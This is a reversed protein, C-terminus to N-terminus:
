EHSSRGAFIFYLVVLLWLSIGAIYKVLPPIPSPSWFGEVVAALVLMGSAGFFLPVALTGARKFADVRKYRGPAILAWGMRLGAAGSFVIGNLELAGHGIVFPYFFKGFNINEIHAFITGLSVGNFIVFFLSGIGALLGGAVTRFGISVNNFIYYAFMEADNKFSRPQLFHDSDPNYMSEVQDLVSNGAISYALEPELRIIGWTALGTGYFCLISILIVGIQQRVAQPFGTTWFDFFGSFSVTKHKYYFEHAEATQKNLRDLTYADCAFTQAAALDKCLITYLETFRKAQTKDKLKRKSRLIGLLKGMELIRPEVNQLFGSENM